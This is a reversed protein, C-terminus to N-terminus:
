LRAILAVFLLSLIWLGIVSIEDRLSFIEQVKRDLITEMRVKLEEKLRLDIEERVAREIFCKASEEYDEPQIFM